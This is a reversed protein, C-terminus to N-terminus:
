HNQRFFHRKKNEEWREVIQWQNFPVRQTINVRRFINTYMKTFFWKCDIQKKKRDCKAPGKISILLHLFNLNKRWITYIQLFWLNSFFLGNYIMRTNPFKLSTSVNERVLNWENFNVTCTDYIITTSYSM